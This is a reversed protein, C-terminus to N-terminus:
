YKISDAIDVLIDPPVKDSLLKDISLVYQWGEMEFVLAYFGAIELYLAEGKDKLTFKEMIRKDSFSIKHVIPRVDIKYHHGPSAENIWVAEFSDNIDDELDNFRGFHHTFSIPPVQIPLKLKQRFHREAGELAEGVPKYGIEDFVKELSQPNAHIGISGSAFFLLWTVILILPIHRNM